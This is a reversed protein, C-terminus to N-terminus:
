CAPLLAALILPAPKFHAESAASLHSASPAESSGASSAASLSRVSDAHENVRLDTLAGM